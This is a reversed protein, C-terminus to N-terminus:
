ANSPTPEGAVGVARLHPVVDDGGNREISRPAWPNAHTSRSYRQGVTIGFISELRRRTIWGRFGQCSRKM